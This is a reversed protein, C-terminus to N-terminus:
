YYANRLVAVSKYTLDRLSLRNDVILVGNKGNLTVHTRVILYSQASLAVSWLFNGCHNKLLELGIRLCVEALLDCLSYDSNGRVEGISLTLRCLICSLYCSKVYSTDYVLRGSRSKGVSYILFLLLLYHNVIQAASGEIYGDDLHAVANCLYKSGRAVVM